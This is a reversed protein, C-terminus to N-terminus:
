MQRYSEIIDIGQEKTNVVYVPWGLGRLWRHIYHQLKSAKKGPCKFEIMVLTRGPGFFFHDPFGRKGLGNIKLTLWGLSNAYDVVPKEVKDYEEGRSM